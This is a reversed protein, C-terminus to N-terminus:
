PLFSFISAQTNGQNGLAKVLTFRHNKPLQLHVLFKLMEIALWKLNILLKGKIVPAPPIYLSGTLGRLLVEALQRTLTLRLSQTASSEVASLMSRYRAVAQDLKNTQIHLIPARQLATELVPGIHRIPVPPQPSHSGTSTVTSANAAQQLKDLEQLYLLTLDAALEFCKTTQEEREVQKYKSSTTPPIKELCLGKIAYSEAVIKLGRSPLEKETLSDLEANSYHQLAEEYRGCSYNLKGLLLNGDLAVRAKKGLETTANLLHKRSENLGNRAKHINSDIPPHEELFSELKGEGLLFDAM